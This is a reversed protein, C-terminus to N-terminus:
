GRLLFSPNTALGLNAGISYPNPNGVIRKLAVPELSRCVITIGVLAVTPDDPMTSVNVSRIALPYEADSVEQAPSNQSQQMKINQYVAFAQNVDMSLMANVTTKGSSGKGGIRDILKSGIWTWKWHSGLRTFLFKDFEQSLLDAGDIREYASGILNYDFEIKTGGCRRCYTPHTVYSIHTVPSQNQIKKHFLIARDLDWSSIPDKVISWSPFLMKGSVVRGPVIGLRSYASLVRSTTPSSETKDTWRPDTFTFAANKSPTRSRILVRDRKMSFSLSPIKLSLDKVMDSARVNGTLLQVFTPAENGVRIYLLDNHNQKIKYPGSNTFILEAHSWLGTPPVAVGDIWVMVRQNSPPTRFRITRSNRDYLGSEMHIEHSCLKQLAFDYSM